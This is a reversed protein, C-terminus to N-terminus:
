LSQNTSFPLLAMMVPIVSPTMLYLLFVLFLWNWCDGDTGALPVHWKLV